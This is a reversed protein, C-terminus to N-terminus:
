LVLDVHCAVEDLLSSRRRESAAAAALPLVSFSPQASARISSPTRAIAPISDLLSHRLADLVDEVEDDDPEEELRGVGEGGEGWEWGDDGRQNNFRFASSSDRQGQGDLTEQAAEAPGSAARAMRRYAAASRRAIYHASILAVLLLATVAIFCLVFISLISGAEPPRPYLLEYLIMGM